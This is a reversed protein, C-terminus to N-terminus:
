VKEFVSNEELLVPDLELAVVAELLAISCEFAVVAELLPVDCVM